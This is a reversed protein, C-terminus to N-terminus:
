KLLGARKLLVSLSKELESFKDKVVPAKAIIAVEYGAKVNPSSNGIIAQLQRKIRNRITAKKSIKTGVIFGFRTQHGHTQRVKILINPSNFTRGYRHLQAWDKGKTIRSKRPLM